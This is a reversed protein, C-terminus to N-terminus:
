DTTHRPTSMVRDLDALLRQVDIPKTWYGAFGAHRARQLDDPMADASCMFAPASQLGPLERLRTLLDSGAIDPLHADLVLV